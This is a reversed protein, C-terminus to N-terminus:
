INKFVNTLMTSSWNKKKKFKSTQTTNQHESPDIFLWSHFLYFKDNIENTSPFMKNEVPKLIDRTRQQYLLLKKTSKEHM